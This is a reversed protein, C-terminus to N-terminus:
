SEERSKCRAHYRPIGRMDDKVGERWATDTDDLPSPSTTRAKLTPPSAPMEMRVTDDALASSGRFMLREANVAVCVTGNRHCASLQAGRASTQRWSPTSASETYNPRLPACPSDGSRVPM